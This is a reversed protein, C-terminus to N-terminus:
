YINSNLNEKISKKTKLKTKKMGILTRKPQWIFMYWSELSRPVYIYLFLFSLPQSSLLPSPLPPVEKIIDKLKGQLQAALALDKKKGAIGAQNTFIM